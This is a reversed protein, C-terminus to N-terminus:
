AAGIGPERFCRWLLFVSAVAVVGNAFIFLWNPMLSKPLWGMQTAQQVLSIGMEFFACLLIRDFGNINISAIQRNVLFRGVLIGGGFFILMTSLFLGTSTDTASM